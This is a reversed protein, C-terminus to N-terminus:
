IVHKAWEFFNPNLEKYLGILEEGVITKLSIINLRVINRQENTLHTSCIFGRLKEYTIKYNNLAEIKKDVPLSDYLKIRNNSDVVISKFVYKDLSKHYVVRNNEADFGIQIWPLGCDSKDLSTSYVFFNDVILGNELTLISLSHGAGDPIYQEAYSNFLRKTVQDYTM